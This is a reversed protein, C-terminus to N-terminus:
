KKKIIGKLRQFVEASHLVADTFSDFGTPVLMFEQFPMINGAHSGGNIINFCPIPLSM